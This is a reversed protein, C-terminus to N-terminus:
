KKARWFRFKAPKDEDSVILLEKRLTMELSQLTYNRTIVGNNAISITGTEESVVLIIADSNESMGLAARHRTGMEKSIDYNQSLPLFCGAPSHPYKYKYLWWRIKM